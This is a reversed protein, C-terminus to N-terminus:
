AHCFDIGLSREVCQRRRERCKLFGKTWEEGFREFLQSFVQLRKLLSPKLDHAAIYDVVQHPTLESLSDSSQLLTQAAGLNESIM